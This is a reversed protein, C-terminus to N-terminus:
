SPSLEGALRGLFWNATRRAAFHLLAGDILLGIAGLPPTYVGILSVGLRNITVRGAFVPFLPALGASSWEIEIEYGDEAARAVGLDVYAAKRFLLTKTGQSIPFALDTLYRRRDARPSEVLTGLWDPAALRRLAVAPDLEIPHRASLRAVRDPSVDISRHRTAM